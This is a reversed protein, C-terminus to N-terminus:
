QLVHHIEYQFRHAKCHWRKMLSGKVYMLGVRYIPMIIIVFTTVARLVHQLQVSQRVLCTGLWHPTARILCVWPRGLAADVRAAAARGHAQRTLGKRWHNQNKTTSARLAFGRNRSKVFCHLPLHTCLCDGRFM